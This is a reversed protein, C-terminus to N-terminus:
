RRLWCGLILSFLLTRLRYQLLVMVTQDFRALDEVELERWYIEPWLKISSANRKLLLFIWPLILQSQFIACLDVFQQFEKFLKVVPKILIPSILLKATGLLLWSIFWLLRLLDSLVWMRNRRSRGLNVIKWVFRWIGLWLRFRYRFLCLLKVDFEQLFLVLSKRFQEALWADFGLCEFKIRLSIASLAVIVKLVLLDM